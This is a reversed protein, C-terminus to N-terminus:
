HHSMVSTHREGDTQRDTQRHAQKDPEDIWGLILLRGHDHSVSSLAM